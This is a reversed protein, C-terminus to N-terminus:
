ICKKIYMNPYYEALFLILYPYRELTNKEKEVDRCNLIDTLIDDKETELINILFIHLNQIITNKILLREEKIKSYDNNYKRVYKDREEKFEKL